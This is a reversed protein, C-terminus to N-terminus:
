LFKVHLFDHYIVKTIVLLYIVNDFVIKQGGQTNYVSCVLPIKDM